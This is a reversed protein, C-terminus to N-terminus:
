SGADSETETPEDYEEEDQDDEEESDSDEEEDDLEMGPVAKWEMYDGEIWRKSWPLLYPDFPFYADLQFMNEGSKNSLATERVGYGAVTDVNRSLRIRKNIEIKPYIYMFKLHHAVAAFQSVIGPACVKLPNLTSYINRNFAEKIGVEWKLEDPDFADDDEEDVLLDRWRFCFIYLLAQAIAYYDSYRALDPCCNPNKEYFVRLRNLEGSLSTFTEVVTHSEVRASRAIFSALYAAASRKALKNAANREFVAKTLSEVFLESLSPATQAFHFLLFQVHRSRYTPLISRTFISIMQEFMAEKDAISSKMFATSYHDFLLDLIVDLKMVFSKLKDKQNQRPDVTTDANSEAEEDAESEVDDDEDEDRDKANRQISALIDELLSDDDEELDEIDAQIQVDIHCMREITLSLIESKLAPAYATIRLLNSVYAVHANVSETEHPFEDALVSKLSSLSSPFKELIFRLTHHLRNRLVSRGVVAEGPLRGLASRVTACNTQTRQMASVDLLECNVFDRVLCELFYATFDGNASILNALLRRYAKLFEENRGLWSLSLVAKILSDCRKRMLQSSAGLADIYKKLLTPSPSDDATPKGTLLSKLSDYATSNGALHSEIARRVEERVLQASKENWFLETKNDADNFQVKHVRVRKRQSDDNDELDSATRKLASKLPTAMSGSKASDAVTRSPMIVLARRGHFRFFTLNILFSIFPLAPTPLRALFFQPKLPSAHPKAVPTNLMFQATHGQDARITCFKNDNGMAM